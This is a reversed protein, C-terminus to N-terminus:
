ECMKSFRAGKEQTLNDREIWELALCIVRESV